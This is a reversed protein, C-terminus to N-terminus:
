FILIFCTEVQDLMKMKTHMMDSLNKYFGSNPKKLEMANDIDDKFRLWAEAVEQMSCKGQTASNVNGNSRNLTNSKFRGNVLNSRPTSKSYMSTTMSTNSSENSSTRSLSFGSSKQYGNTHGESSNTRAVTQPSKISSFYSKIGSSNASNVRNRMNYGDNIGNEPSLKADGFRSTSSGFGVAKPHSSVGSSKTRRATLDVTTTTRNTNSWPRLSNSRLHTPSPSSPPSIDSGSSSISEDEESGRRGREVTNGHNIRVKPRPSPSQRRHNGNSNSPTNKSASAYKGSLHQQHQQQRRELRKRRRLEETPTLDDDSIGHILSQRREDQTPTVCSEVLNQVTTGDSVNLDYREDSDSNPSSFTGSDENYDSRPLSKSKYGSHKDLSSSPRQQQSAMARAIRKGDSASREARRKGASAKTLSHYLRNAIAKNSSASVSLENMNELEDGGGTCSASRKAFINSNSSNTFDTSQSRRTPHAMHLNRHGSGLLLDPTISARGHPNYNSSNTPSIKLHPIMPSISGRPTGWNREDGDSGAFEFHSGDVSHALSCSRSAPAVDRSSKEKKVGHGHLSGCCGKHLHAKRETAPSDGGRLSTEFAGLMVPM